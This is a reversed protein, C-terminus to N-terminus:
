IELVPSSELPSYPVGPSDFRRQLEFTKALCFTFDNAMMPETNVPFLLEIGAAEVM